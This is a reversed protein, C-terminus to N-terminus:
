FARRRHRPFTFPVFAKGTSRKRITGIQSDWLLLAYFSKDFTRDARKSRRLVAQTPLVVNSNPHGGLTYTSVGNVGTSVASIRYTGNVGKTNATELRVQDGVTLNPLTNPAGPWTGQCSLQVPPGATYAFNNVALRPELVNLGYVGWGSNPAIIQSVYQGFLTSWLQTNGLGFRVNTNAFVGSKVIVSPIFNLLLNRRVSNNNNDYPTTACVATLQKSMAYSPFDNEQASINLSSGFLQLPGLLVSNQPFVLDSIRIWNLAPSGPAMVNSGPGATNANGLMTARTTALSQAATAVTSIQVGPSTNFGLTESAGSRGDSFIFKVSWNGSTNVTPSAM